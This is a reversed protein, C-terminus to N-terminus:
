AKKDQDRERQEVKFARFKYSKRQKTLGQQLLLGNGHMIGGRQQSVTQNHPAIRPWWGRM